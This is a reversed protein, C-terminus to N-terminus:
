KVSIENMMPGFMGKVMGAFEDAKILSLCCVKDGKVFSILALRDGAKINARDRSTKPIVIQGRGDISLIADVKCCGLNTGEPACYPKGKGKRAM